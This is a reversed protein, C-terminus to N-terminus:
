VSHPDLLHRLAEASLNLSRTELITRFAAEQGDDIQSMQPILRDAFATDISGAPDTDSSLSLLVYKLLDVLQASGVPWGPVSDPHRLESLVDQITHLESGLRETVEPLTGHDLGPYTESLWRHASSLAATTEPSLGDSTPRDPVTITVFQFRRTLGQSLTNVFGTDLDNMAAIIRFRAPAWLTQREPKNEYWLDLPTRDLHQPDCSSLLTYLPGIAKDIDARNFEDIFLWTGQPEDPHEDEGGNDPTQSRVNIACDLIARVVNGYVPALGGSRNPRYGGIVHFPSWESTATAEIYEVEFAQCLARALTTKGTGPPGQLILHGLLLATVCREITAEMDPFVINDDDLLALARASISRVNADRLPRRSTTRTWEYSPDDDDKELEVVAAGAVPEPSVPAHKSFALLAPSWEPEGLVPVDLRRDTTIRQFTRTDMGLYESAAITLADSDPERDWERDRTLFVALADRAPTVAETDHLHSLLIDVADPRLGNKFHDDNFLVRQPNNRTGNNWVTKRGADVVVKWRAAKGIAVFPNISGTSHTPLLAYLDEAAHNVGAISPEYGAAEIRAAALFTLMWNSTHINASAHESLQDLATELAM